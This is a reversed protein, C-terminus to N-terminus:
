RDPPRAPRRAPRAAASPRPAQNKIPVGPLDASARGPLESSLKRAEVFTKVAVPTRLPLIGRSGESTAFRRPLSEKVATSGAGVVLNGRTRLPM